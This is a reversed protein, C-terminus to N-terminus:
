VPLCRELNQKVQRPRPRNGVHIVSSDDVDNNRDVVCKNDNPDPQRQTPPVWMNEPFEALCRLEIRKDNCSILAWNGISGPEYISKSYLLEIAASGNTAMQELWDADGPHRAFPM